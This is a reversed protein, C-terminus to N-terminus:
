ISLTCEELPSGMNTSTVFSRALLIFFVSCVRYILRCRYWVVYRRVSALHSTTAALDVGKNADLLSSRRTLPMAIGGGIGSPVPIAIALVALRLAFMATAITFSM